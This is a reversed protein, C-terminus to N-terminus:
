VAFVYKKVINKEKGEKVKAIVETYKILGSGVLKEKLLYDIQFIGASNSLTINIIIPKEDSYNIKVDEISMASVSHIDIKGLEFPIRARGEKMDLADALRVIGAELTFVKMNKDHSVMANLIECLLITRIKEDYLGDLLGEIIQKSLVIGTSNHIDRHIANGVDHFISALVVIIEAENNTLKYDNVSSPVVKSKILNRLLKLAINTVINVHVPGHDTMGARNVAMVNSCELLANIKPSSNVKEIIKRLVENDKCPLNLM